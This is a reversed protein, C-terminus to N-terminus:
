EPYTALVTTPRYDYRYYDLELRQEGAHEDTVRELQAPLLGTAASPATLTTGRQVGDIFFRANGSSDVLIEFSHWSTDATVGSDQATETTSIRTVLQWKGSNLNDSYRFFLGNPPQADADDGFGLRAVYRSGDSSLDDLRAGLRCRWDGGGFKLANPASALAVFGTTFSRCGIVGARYVDSPPVNEVMNGPSDYANVGELGDDTAWCHSSINMLYNPGYLPPQLLDAYPVMDEQCDNFSYRAAAPVAARNLRSDEPIDSAYCRFSGGPNTVGGTPFDVLRSTTTVFEDTANRGLNWAVVEHGQLLTFRTVGNDAENDGAIVMGSFLTRQAGSSSGGPTEAKYLKIRNSSAWDGRAELRTNLFQNWGINAGGTGVKVFNTMNGGGFGVVTINGGDTLDFMTDMGDSAGDGGGGVCGIFKQVLAQNHGSKFGVSSFQFVTDYFALESNNTNNGTEVCTLCWRFVCNQFTIGTTGIYGNISEILAGNSWTTDDDDPGGAITLDQFRLGMCAKIHISTSGPDLEFILTTGVFNAEHTTSTSRLSGDGRILLGNIEEFLLGVDGPTSSAIRYTGAPIHLTSYNKQAKCADIAAQIADRSNNVGTPDAGFGIVSISYSLREQVFTPDSAM